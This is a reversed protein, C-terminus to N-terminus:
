KIPFGTLKDFYFRTKGELDYLKWISQTPSETNEFVLCQLLKHTSLSIVVKYCYKPIILVSGKKIAQSEKTIIGGCFILLSDTQSMERVKTENEKWIGRNLGSTQPLCNYYRFTGEERNCDSAFDEANAMHGIDFGSHEYDSSTATPHKLISDKKFHFGEKKRSCVGGGKYLKYKVYKSQGIKYSYFAEYVGNNIITDKRQSLLLTPLVSLILVFLAYTKKM